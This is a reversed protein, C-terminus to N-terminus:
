NAGFCQHFLLEFRIRDWSSLGRIFIEKDSNGLREYHLLLQNISKSIMTKAVYEYNDDDSSFQECLVFLKKYNKWLSNVNHLNEPKGCISEEHIRKKYGIDLISRVRKAHYLLRFSYLVDEFVIGKYFLLFNEVLLKRKTLQIWVTPYYENVELLCKMMEIGSLVLNIDQTRKKRMIRDKYKETTSVDDAFNEFSFLLVDVEDRKAQTLAKEIFGDCVVDDSDVFYIYEGRAVKIGQNRAVSLGRHEQQIVKFNCFRNRYENLIELSNDESGDDICIVEYRESDQTVISELCARLYKNANYIPIVISIDLESLLNFKDYFIANLYSNGRVFDWWYYGYKTDLDNWPKKGAYHVIIPSKRAIEVEKKGYINQYILNTLDGETYFTMFNYKMPLIGILPKCTINIIDQDQYFYPYSLMTKWLTPLKKRRILQLNMLMVGTNIYNGRWCELEGWYEYNALKNEWSDYLNVDARVGCVYNAGVDIAWLENLDGNIYTDVDLYIVKNINPFIEALDFRYYTAATISRIEYADNAPELEEKIDICSYEDRSYVLRELESACELADSSCICIINYHTEENKNELLSLISVKLYDVVNKDFCYAINIM